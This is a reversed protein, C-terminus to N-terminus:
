NQINDCGSRATANKRVTRSRTDDGVAAVVSSASDAVNAIFAPRGCCANCVAVSTNAEGVASPVAIPHAPAAAANLAARIPRNM